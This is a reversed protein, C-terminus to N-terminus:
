RVVHSELVPKGLGNTRPFQWGMQMVSNVVACSLEAVHLQVQHLFASDIQTDFVNGTEKVFLPVSRGSSDPASWSGHCLVNRIMAAKRLHVVLGELSGMTADPHERVANEFQGILSGLPDTLARELKPLWQEFAKDVETAAYPKTATYSFIAKGLVEELFGYTAVARGLKEWFESEHRRTPFDAPLADMDVIRAKMRREEVPRYCRGDARVAGNTGSGASREPTIAHNARQIVM